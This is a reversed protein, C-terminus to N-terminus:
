QVIFGVRIVLQSFYHLFFVFYYPFVSKSQLSVVFVPYLVRHFSPVCTGIMIPLSVVGGGCCLGVFVSVGIPDVLNNGRIEIQQEVTSPVHTLSM